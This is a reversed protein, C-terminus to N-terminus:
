MVRKSTPRRSLSVLPERVERSNDPLLSDHGGLHKSEHPVVKLPREIVIGVHFACVRIICQKVANEGVRRLPENVVLEGVLDIEYEVLLAAGTM